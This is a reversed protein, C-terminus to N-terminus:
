AEDQLAERLAARARHLLTKVTGPPCNMKEAIEDVSCDRRYYLEVVTAQRPELDAVANWIRRGSQEEQVIQAPSMGASLMRTDDLEAHRHKSRQARIRWIVRSAIRYAWTSLSSRGEYGPLAQYIAAFAEAAADELDPGRLGMAQCLSTILPENSRVLEGFAVADQRRLLSLTEESTQLLSDNM